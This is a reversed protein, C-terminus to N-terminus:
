APFWDSFTPLGTCGGLGDISLTHISSGFMAAYAYWSMCTHLAKIVQQPGLHHCTQVHFCVKYFIGFLALVWLTRMNQIDGLSMCCSKKLTISTM